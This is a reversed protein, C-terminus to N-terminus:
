AERYFGQFNLMFLQLSIPKQQNLAAVPTEPRLLCM